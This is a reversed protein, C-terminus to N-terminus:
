RCTPCPCKSSLWTEPRKQDQRSAFWKAMCSSCWMPRCSCAVCSSNEDDEQASIDGESTLCRRSLKVDAQTVMCGICSELEQLFVPRLNLRAAVAAATQKDEVEEAVVIKPNQDVREKFVEVFRETISKFIEINDKNEIRNQLREQLNEYDLSNM